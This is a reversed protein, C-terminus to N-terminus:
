LPEQMRLHMPQLVPSAAAQLRQKEHTTRFWTAALWTAMSRTLVTWAVQLRAAVLLPCYKLSQVQRKADSAIVRQGAAAQRAQALDLQESLQM